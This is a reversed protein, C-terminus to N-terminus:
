PTEKTTPTREVWLLLGDKHRKRGLLLGQRRFTRRMAEIARIQLARSKVPWLLAKGTTETARIAEYPYLGPRGGNSPSKSPRKRYRVSTRRM